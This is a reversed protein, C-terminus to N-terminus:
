RVNSNLDVVQADLYLTLCKQAGEFTEVMKFVASYLAWLEHVIHVEYVQDKTSIHDEGIMGYALRLSSRRVHRICSSGFKGYSHLLDLMDKSM